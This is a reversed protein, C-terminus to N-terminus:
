ITLIRIFEAVLFIHDFCNEYRNVLHKPTFCIINNNNNPYNGKQFSKEEFSHYVDGPYEGGLIRCTLCENRKKSLKM